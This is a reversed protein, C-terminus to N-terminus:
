RMGRTEDESLMASRPVLRIDWLPLRLGVAAECAASIEAWAVGVAEGPGDAWVWCGIGFTGDPADMDYSTANNVDVLHGWAQQRPDDVPLREAVARILADGASEPVGSRRVVVDVRFLQSGVGFARM